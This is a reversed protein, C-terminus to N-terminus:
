LFSGKDWQCVLLLSHGLQCVRHCPCPGSVPVGYSGTDREACHGSLKPSQAMGKSLVWDMDM